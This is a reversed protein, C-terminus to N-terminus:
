KYPKFTISGKVKTEVKFAEYIKPKKEKLAKADLSIRTTEARRVFKGTEGLVENLNCEKM